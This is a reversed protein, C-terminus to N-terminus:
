HRGREFKTIARNALLLRNRVGSDFLKYVLGLLQENITTGDAILGTAKLYNAAIDYAEGVVEIHVIQVNREVLM